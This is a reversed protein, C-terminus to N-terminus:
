EEYKSGWRSDPSDPKESESQRGGGARRADEDEVRDESEVRDQKEELDDVDIDIDQSGGANRPETGSSSPQANKNQNNMTDDRERTFRWPGAAHVQEDAAAEEKTLRHIIKRGPLGNLENAGQSGTTTGNAFDTSLILYNSSANPLPRLQIGASTM